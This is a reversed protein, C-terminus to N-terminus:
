FVGEMREVEMAIDAERLTDVKKIGCYAAAADILAIAKGPLYEDSMHENSLFVAAMLARDEIKIAHHKELSPAIGKLIVFTEEPTSENTLITKFRRSLAQDKMLIRAGDFTTAGICPFEGRALVPKLADVAGIAGEATGAGLLNHIEDIFVIVRERNKQVDRILGELRQEFEGRYKTGAVLSNLSILYLMKGQLRSPVDGTFLSMAFGKVIATKGVGPYGVLLPNNTEMQYLVQIMREIRSEAGIVPKSKRIYTEDTLLLGYKVLFDLNENEAAFSLDFFSVLEEPLEYSTPVMVYVKEEREHFCRSIEKILARIEGVDPKVTNRDGLYHHFDEFIYVVKTQVRNIIFRIADRPNKLVADNNESLPFIRSDHYLTFGQVQNWVMSARGEMHEARIIKELERSYDKYRILFLPSSLM